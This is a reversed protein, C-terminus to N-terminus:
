IQRRKRKCGKESYHSLCLSVYYALPLSRSFLIFMDIGTHLTKARTRRECGNKQGRHELLSRSNRFKLAKNAKCMPLKAGLSASFYFSLVCSVGSCFSYFCCFIIFFLHHQYRTYDATAWWESKERRKGLRERERERKQVKAEAERITKTTQTASHQKLELKWAGTDSTTQPCNRAEQLRLKKKRERMREVTWRPLNGASSSLLAQEKSDGSLYSSASLTWSTNSALFAREWETEKM